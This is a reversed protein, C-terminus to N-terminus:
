ASILKYKNKIEYIAREVHILQPLTLTSSIHGVHLNFRNHRPQLRRKGLQQKVSGLTSHWTNDRTELM